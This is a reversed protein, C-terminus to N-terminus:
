RWATAGPASCLSDTPCGSEEGHYEKDNILQRTETSYYWVRNNM